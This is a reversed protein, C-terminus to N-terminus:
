QKGAVVMSDVRAGASSLAETGAFVATRVLVVANRAGGYAYM